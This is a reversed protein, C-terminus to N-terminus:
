PKSVTRKRKEAIGNWGSRNEGDQDQDEPRYRARVEIGSHRQCEHKPALQRKKNRKNVKRSLQRARDGARPKRM